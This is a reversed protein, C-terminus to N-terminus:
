VIGDQELLALFNEVSQEEKPKNAMTEAAKTVGFLKQMCLRRQTLNHHAVMITSDKCSSVAPSIGDLITKLMHAQTDSTVPWKFWGRGKSQCSLVNEDDSPNYWKTTSIREVYCMGYKQQKYARMIQNYSPIYDYDDDCNYM